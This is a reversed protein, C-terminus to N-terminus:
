FESAEVVPSPIASEEQEPLDIEVEEIENKEEESM